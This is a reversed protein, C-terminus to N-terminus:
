HFTLAAIGAAGRLCAIVMYCRRKMMDAQM